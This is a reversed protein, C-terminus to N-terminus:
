GPQGPKMGPGEHHWRMMMPHPRHHRLTELDFVKKQSPTLTAYFAKTADARKDMEANRQARLARMQDIREPTTLKEFAARELRAPPTAPPKLAETYTTWAGEQAPTLQLKIKFEALRKAMFEQMKAPDPRSWREHQQSMGGRDGPQGAAPAPQAFAIAGMGALLGAVLTQKLVQKM